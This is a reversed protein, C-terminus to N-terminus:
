LLTTSIACKLNYLSAIRRPGAIRSSRKKLKESIPGASKAKSGEVFKGAQQRRDPFCWQMVVTLWVDRDPVFRWPM